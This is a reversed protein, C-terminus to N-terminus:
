KDMPPFFLCLSIVVDPVKRRRSKKQTRIFTKISIFICKHNSSWRKYISAWIHSVSKEFSRIACACTGGPNNCAAYLMICFLSPRTCKGELSNASSEKRKSCLSIVLLSFFFFERYCSPYSLSFYAKFFIQLRYSPYHSCCKSERTRRQWQM